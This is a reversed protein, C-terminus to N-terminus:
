VHYVEMEIITMGNEIKADFGMNGFQYRGRTYCASWATFYGKLENLFYAIVEDDAWNSINPDYHMRLRQNNCPPGKHWNFKFDKLAEIFMIPQCDPCPDRTIFLIIEGTGGCSECTM